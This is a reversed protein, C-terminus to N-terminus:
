GRVFIQTFYYEGSASRAVGIGTFTFDGILNDEHLPSNIWGTMAKQASDRSSNRALNEGFEEWRIVTSVMKTRDEYGDHGWSSLGKAMNYSHNRAIESIDSNIELTSLGHQKRYQNVLLLVTKEFEFSQDLDVVSKESVTQAASLEKTDTTTCGVLGSLFVLGLFVLQTRKIIKM